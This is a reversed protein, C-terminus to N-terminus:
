RPPGLGRQWNLIVRIPSEREADVPVSALFRRGDPTVDYDFIETAASFLTQPAGVALTGLGPTVPVMM